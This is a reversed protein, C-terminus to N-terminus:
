KIGSKKLIPQKLRYIEFSLKGRRQLKKYRKFTVIRVGTSFQSEIIKNEEIFIGVHNNHSNLIRQIQRSIFDNGHVLILDGIM